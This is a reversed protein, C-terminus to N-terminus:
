SVHHGGLSYRVNLRHEFRPASKSPVLALPWINDTLPAAIILYEIDFGDLVIRRRTTTGVRAISNNTPDAVACVLAVTPDADASLGNAGSSPLQDPAPVISKAFPFCSGM